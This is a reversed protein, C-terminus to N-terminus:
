LAVKMDKNSVFKDDYGHCVLVETQRQTSENPHYNILADLQNPVKNIVPANFVGHFTAMAKMSSINMKSLELICYGGLCWGLSGLDYENIKNGDYSVGNTKGHIISLQNQMTVVAAKIRSQLIPRVPDIVDHDKTSEIQDLNDGDDSLLITGLLNDSVQKYRERDDNWGWGCEDSIMDAIFVIVDRQGNNVNGDDADDNTFLTNVIASAKWLLFIDHPGAGTHFFLIGIPPLTSVSSSQKRRIFHGYLPIIGDYYKVSKWETNWMSPKTGTSQSTLEDDHWAELVANAYDYDKALQPQQYTATDVNNQDRQVCLTQEILCKTPSLTEPDLPSWDCLTEMTSTTVFIKQKTSELSNNDKSSTIMYIIRTHQFPRKSSLTSTFSKVLQSKFLISLIVQLIPLLTSSYQQRYNRKRSKTNSSNSNLAFEQGVPRPHHCLYLSNFVRM